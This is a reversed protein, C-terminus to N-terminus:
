RRRSFTQRHSAVGSFSAILAKLNRAGGTPPDGSGIPNAMPCRGTGCQESRTLEVASYDGVHTTGLILHSSSSSTAEAYHVNNSVNAAENTALMITSIWVTHRLLPDPAYHWLLHDLATQLGSWGSAYLWVARESPHPGVLSNQEVCSPCNHEDNITSAADASWAAIVVADSALLEKHTAIYHWVEHLPRPHSSVSVFESRPTGEDQGNGAFTTLPLAACSIAVAILTLFIKM